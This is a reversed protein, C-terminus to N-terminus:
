RWDNLEQCVVQTDVVHLAEPIVFTHKHTPTPTHIPHLPTKKKKNNNNTQKITQKKKSCYPKVRNNTMKNFILLRDKISTKNRKAVKTNKKRKVRLIDNAKRSIKNSGPDVQIDVSVHWWWWCCDESGYLWLTQETM